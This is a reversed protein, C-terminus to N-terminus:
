LRCLETAVSLTHTKYCVRRRQLSNLDRLFSTNQLILTKHSALRARLYFRGTYRKQPNSHNLCITPSPSHKSSWCSAWSVKLNLQWSGPFGQFCCSTAPLCHHPMADQLDCLYRVTLLLYGFTAQSHQFQQFIDWWTTQLHMEKFYWNWEIQTKFTRLQLITVTTFLLM